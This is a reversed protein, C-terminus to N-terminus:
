EEVIEAGELKDFADRKLVVKRSRPEPMLVEVTPMRIEPIIIDPINAAAVNVIPAPVNM